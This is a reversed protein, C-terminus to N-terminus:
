YDKLLLLCTIKLEESVLVGDPEIGAILNKALTPRASRLAKEIDSFIVQMDTIQELTLEKGLNEGSVYDLVKQCVERAKKGAEIKAQREAEAQLEATLDIIQVAFESPVIEEHTIAPTIVAGTEDLVAPVDEVTITHEPIGWNHEATHRAIESQALELSAYTPEHTVLGSAVNTIKVKIM